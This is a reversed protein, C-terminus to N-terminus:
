FRKFDKLFVPRVRKSVAGFFYFLVTALLLNAILRWLEGHVSAFISWDNFRWATFLGLVGDYIFTAVVTLLWISYLSRNTIFNSLLFFVIGFCLGLALLNAGFANFQFIDLFWGFALFWWAARHPGFIVLIYILIVLVINLFNFGAPLSWVATQALLVLWILIANILIVLWM